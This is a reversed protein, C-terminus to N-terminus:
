QSVCLLFILGFLLGLTLSLVSLLAYFAKGLTQPLQPNVGVM